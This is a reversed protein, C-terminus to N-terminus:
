ARYRESREGDIHYGVFVAVAIVLALETLDDYSHGRDNPLLLDPLWLVTAWVATAVSGSLGYRLAAYGVPVLLLGVPLGSPFASSEPSSIIDVILHAAALGIVVVQVLWFRPDRLPPQLVRGIAPNWRGASAGTM